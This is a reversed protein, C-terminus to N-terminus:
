QVVALEELPEPPKGATRYGLPWPDGTLDTWEKTREVVETLSYATHVLIADLPVQKITNANGKMIESMQRVSLGAWEALKAIGTLQEARYRYHRSESKRQAAESLMVDKALKMAEVLFPMAVELPIPATRTMRELVRAARRKALVARRNDKYWQAYYAM